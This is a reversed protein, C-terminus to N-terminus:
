TMRASAGRRQYQRVLFRGVKAWEAGEAGGVSAKEFVAMILLRKARSLNADPIVTPVRVEPVGGYPSGCGAPAFSRAETRSGRAAESLSRGSPVPPSPHRNDPKDFM